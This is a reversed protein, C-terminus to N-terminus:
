STAPISSKMFSFRSSTIPLTVVVVMTTHLAQKWAWKFEAQHYTQDSWGNMWAGWGWETWKSGNVNTNVYVMLGCGSTNPEQLLSPDTLGSCAGISKISSPYKSFSAKGSWLSGIPRLNTGPYSRRIKFRSLKSLMWVPKSLRSTLNTKYNKHNASTQPNHNASKMTPTDHRLLDISQLSATILGFWQHMTM